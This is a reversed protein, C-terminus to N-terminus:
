DTWALDGNLRGEYYRRIEERELYERAQKDILEDLRLAEQECAQLLPCSACTVQTHADGFCAISRPNM